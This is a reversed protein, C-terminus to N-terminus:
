VVSAYYCGRIIMEIHESSNTELSSYCEVRMIAVFDLHALDTQCRLLLLLLLSFPTLTVFPFVCLNSVTQCGYFMKLYTALSM